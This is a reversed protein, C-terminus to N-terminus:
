EVELDVIIKGLATQAFNRPLIPITVTGTPSAALGVFINTVSLGPIGSIPAFLKSWEVDVGVGLNNIHNLLAQNVLGVIDNTSGQKKIGTVKLFIQVPTPRTFGITRLQGLSDLVDHYETGFAKVGLPRTKSIALAIQRPEGGRVVVEFSKPPITDVTVASDNEIVQLFSVGLNAVASQITGISHAGQAEISLDRRARLQADSEYPIGRDGETTNSVATWGTIVTKVKTIEGVNVNFDGLTTCVALVTAPLFVEYATAFTLGSETGVLSGQPIVTGSVGSLIVMVQCPRDVIRKLNNYDVVYDLAVGNALMPSLTQFTAFANQEQEWCEQAIVGIIQGDPSSPTVDFSDGFVSKLRSEIGSVIEQVTRPVFGAETLSM